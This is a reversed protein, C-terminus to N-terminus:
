ADRPVSIMVTEYLSSEPPVSMSSIETVIAPSLAGVTVAGTIVDPVGVGEAGTVKLEDTVL